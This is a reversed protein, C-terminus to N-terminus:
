RSRRPPRTRSCRPATGRRRQAGSAITSTFPRTSRRESPLTCSSAARPSATRPRGRGPPRAAARRRGRRRRRPSPRASSASRRTGRGPAPRARPACRPRRRLHQPQARPEADAGVAVEQGLGPRQQAGRDDGSRAYTTRVHHAVSAIRRARVPSTRAIWRITLPSRRGRRAAQPLLQDRQVLVNLVEAPPASSSPLDHAATRQMHHPIVQGLHARDATSGSTAHPAPRIDGRTARPASSTTSPRALQPTCRTNTSVNSCSNKARARRM